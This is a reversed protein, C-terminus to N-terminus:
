RSFDISPFMRRYRDRNGLVQKRVHFLADIVTNGTVVIKKPDIGERILNKKAQETPPFHLDGLHSTLIRNIEEPFPSYKQWTRLGAEVHGVPIGEYYAALAAAFTTTTDGQVVVMDPREKRLVEKMGSLVRSTIQELSQGSQMINLDHHVRIAFLRLVQDLMERHQATVCVRPNFQDARRRLEQVIPALKIAEPRTGFVVLIKSRKRM